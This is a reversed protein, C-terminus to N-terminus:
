SRSSGPVGPRNGAGSAPPHPGMRVPGTEADLDVLVLKSLEQELRVGVTGLMLRDAPEPAEYGVSRHLCGALQGPDRGPRYSGRDPEQVVVTRSCYAVARALAPTM